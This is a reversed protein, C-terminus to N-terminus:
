RSRGGVARTTQDGAGSGTSSTEEPLPKWHTPEVSQEGDENVAWCYGDTWCDPPEQDRTFVWGGCWEGNSDLLDDAWAIVNDQGNGPILAQFESGDKPATEIPQWDM